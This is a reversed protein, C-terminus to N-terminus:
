FGKGEAAPAVALLGECHEGAERLQVDVVVGGQPGPAAFRAGWHRGRQHTAAQRRWRREAFWREYFGAVDDLPEATRFATLGGGQETQVALGRRSGSPLPPQGDGGIAAVPRGSAPWFTYVNWADSVAPAAVGWTVVRSGTAAVPKGGVLPPPRPLYLAAVMPFPGEIVYVRLGDPRVLAPSRKELTALLSREPDTPPTSPQEVAPLAAAQVLAAAAAEADGHVVARRMSWAADGFQFLRGVAFDDTGEGAEPVGAAVGSALPDARWWILVQRGVSLGAVFIMAVLLGRTTWRSIDKSLQPFSLPNRRLDKTKPKLGELKSSLVRGAM